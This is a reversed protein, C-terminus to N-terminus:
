VTFIYLLPATAQLFLSVVLIEELFIIQVNERKRRKQILLMVLVLSVSMIFIESGFFTVFNFIEKLLPFSIIELREEVLGDVWGLSLTSIKGWLFYLSILLGFILSIFFLARTRPYNKVRKELDEKQIKLWDSIKM